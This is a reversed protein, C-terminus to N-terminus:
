IFKLVSSYKETLDYLWDVKGSIAISKNLSYLTTKLLCTIDHDGESPVYFITSSYDYIEPIYSNNTTSTKSRLEQNGLLWSLNAPPGVASAACELRYLMNTWFVTVGSPQQENNSTINSLEPYVAFYLIHIHFFMQTM